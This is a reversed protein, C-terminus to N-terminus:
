LRPRIILRLTPNNTMLAAFWNSALKLKNRFGAIPLIHVFLWIFWAFFGTMSFKPLDAVAKYKAIIAMSGKDKYRFPVMPKGEDERAINDALTRGQQLAVQALQPHGDPYGIDFTNLAIDGIAFINATGQVRHCADTMVRRGRGIVEPELGPLEKGIVGSTWVLTNSPIFRGDALLVGQNVYDKVAVNLIVQVGLDQLVSLAEKQATESMPGLLAGGSNVLYLNDKFGKIEPYEKASINRGMEGLMGALEVGTPGGGAIVINSYLAKEEPTKARVAKEMTTLLHNRLSLADSITKMPHAHRRVNEMGFFNSETGVALILYDYSIRGTDTEIYNEQHNIHLLSGLHFRLNYKNQFMRRFPYSINSPEIFATGVQYILPPFFHYNNTDVLTIRFDEDRHLKKIFNMGAFGGGVVVVHKPHKSMDSKLDIIGRSFYLISVTNRYQQLSILPLTFKLM